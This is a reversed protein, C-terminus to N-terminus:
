KHSKKQKPTTYQGLEGSTSPVLSLFAMVYLIWENFEKYEKTKEDIGISFFL